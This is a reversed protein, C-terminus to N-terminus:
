YIVSQKLRAEKGSVLEPCAAIVSNNITTEQPKHQKLHNKTTQPPTHHSAAPDTGLKHHVSFSGIGKLHQFLFQTYLPKSKLLLIM